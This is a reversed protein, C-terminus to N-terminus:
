VQPPLGVAAVVCAQSVVSPPCTSTQNSLCHVAAGIGTDSANVQPLLAPSSHLSNDKFTARNTIWAELTHVTVRRTPLSGGQHNCHCQASGEFPTTSLVHYEDSVLQLV